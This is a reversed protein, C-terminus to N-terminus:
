FSAKLLQFIKGKLLLDWLKGLVEENALLVRRKMSNM